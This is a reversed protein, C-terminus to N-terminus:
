SDWPLLFLSRTCAQTSFSERSNLYIINTKFLNRYGGESVKGGSGGWVMM